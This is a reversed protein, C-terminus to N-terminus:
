KKKLFSDFWPKVHIVSYLFTARHDAKSGASIAITSGSGLLKHYWEPLQAIFVPVVEDKEGYYMHLPTQCRWRYAQSKELNLWFATNGINGTAMFEPNLFDQVKDKTLKRFTPWDIKWNFFDKAAQLYQPKIASATLGTLQNYNEVAFLYNSVCGPLYVADIPQYNNIWRDMTGFADSPASATSAAAVPIGLAELKRLFAMNNWGGQSWGHIFLPGQKIKKSALVDNAALLMDVCAQETSSRVLYSNPLNSIGLGFYDAGIVIYGQGAFEAIMLKTEMSENPYSPCQTKGFVTGHQYSIIPMSDLGTEPIAVLGSAVTPQNDWEPVVSNYKVRYLKVAYKPKPFSDKFAKAGVTSSAMFEETEENLIKNLKIIDFTGILQYQVGTSANVYEGSKQAVGQFCFLIFLSFQFVSAFIQKRM